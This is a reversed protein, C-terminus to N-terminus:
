QKIIQKIIRCKESTIQFQYVGAPFNKLNLETSESTLLKSLIVSGRVNTITLTLPENLKPITVTVLNTAPNPFISVCNDTMTKVSLPSTVNITVSKSVSEYNADGSFTVTLTQNGAPLVTGLSPNYTATGTTGTATANLQTASLATGSVIDAPNEWTITPTAKNITIYTISGVACHNDDASVSVSIPYTGAPLISDLSPIYTATGTTGTVGAKFQDTNLTTGYTISAPPNWTLTSSEPYVEITVTKKAAAYNADEAVNVTLTQIGANIITGIAPTYTVAGTSGAVTANLQVISLPTGHAIPQPNDWTIVTPDKLKTNSTINGTLIINGM